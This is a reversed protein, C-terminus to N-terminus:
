VKLTLPCTLSAFSLFAVLANRMGSGCAAAWILIAYPVPLLDAGVRREREEPLGGKERGMITAPRTSGSGSASGTAM